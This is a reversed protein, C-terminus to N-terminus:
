IAITAMAIDDNAVIGEKNLQREFARLRRKAFAGMYSKFPFLMMVADALPIQDGRRLDSIGDSLVTISRADEARYIEAHDLQDFPIEEESTRVEGTEKDIIHTTDVIKVGLQDYQQRRGQLLFYSVYFPFNPTFKRERIIWEYETDLVVVGDGIMLHMIINNHHCAINLTADGAGPTIGVQEGIAKVKSRLLTIFDSRLIATADGFSRLEYLSEKASFTVIRSSFDSFPHPKSETPTKIMSCGDAVIAYHLNQTMGTLAYDQCIVHSSGRMFCHDINM